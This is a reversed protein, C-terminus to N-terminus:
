FVVGIVNCQTISCYKIKITSKHFNYMRITVHAFSSFIIENLMLGKKSGPIRIDNIVPM